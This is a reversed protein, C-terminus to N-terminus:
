VRVRVGVARTGMLHGDTVGGGCARGPQAVGRYTFNVLQLMVRPLLIVHLWIKNRTACMKRTHRPEGERGGRRGEEEKRKRVVSRERM